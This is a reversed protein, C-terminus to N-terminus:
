KRTNKCIFDYITIERSPPNNKRAEELQSCFLSRDKKIKEFKELLYSLM